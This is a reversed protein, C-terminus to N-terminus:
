PAITYRGDKVVVSPPVGNQEFSDYIPKIERWFAIWQNTERRKLEADNLPFPFIHVPFAKQGAELARTCITWIEEIAEDGMAFCGISVCSGHVMLASGTRKHHTDFANPYGLNFSLHFRSNPNMQSPAVSYFGEPAQNDGEKLKPGLTGSFKCIPYTRFREYRDGKKIWIQLIAPDKFIRVFVPDGLKLKQKALDATVKPEVRKIAARSRNSSPVTEAPM